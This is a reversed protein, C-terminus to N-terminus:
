DARVWTCGLWAGKSFCPPSSFGRRTGRGLSSALSWGAWHLSPCSSSVTLGPSPLPSPPLSLAPSPWTARIHHLPSLSLSLFFSLLSLLPFATIVLFIFCCLFMFILQSWLAYSRGRDRGDWWRTEKPTLAMFVGRVCWLWGLYSFSLCEQARAHSLRTCAISCYSSSM